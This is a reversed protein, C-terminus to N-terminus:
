KPKNAPSQVKFNDPKKGHKYHQFFYPICGGEDVTYGWEELYHQKPLFQDGTQKLKSQLKDELKKQLGAYEADDLLNKMQYPDIQNDYLLWPGDSNRVYTYRSTRIGRFAKRNGSGFPSVNMVLAARDEDTNRNLVFRSLDEGEVSDPVKIGALSLLTPLIDPTNIPAKVTRGKHGSVAPYRLLFPVRISEDWPRQKQCPPQAQSGLMEGHDSTFVFITDGTAGIEELTRLLDGICRDLATCHAYYGQAEKRARSKMNEPVNPRLKISDVPYQDKLGQPAYRHPFHPGGYAMVLLFPKDGKAHGRIYEQADETQAFADYGKWMRKTKDDGAYYHSNNYEHTCELVKWYDFGQRRDEPIFADRGHGDLHWKGIYATEYGAAKFIEGMCLEEGPLYLDNMFMGTSLPYRGTMLSARYPTCVPCVSVANEFNISKSALADLNPTKVNPDGAYGTAQARWQDTLVYVINPKRMASTKPAFLQCGATAVPMMAAATKIFQRRTLSKM